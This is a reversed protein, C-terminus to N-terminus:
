CQDPDFDFVLTGNKFGRVRRDSESLIVTIASTENTIAAAAWHRTGLGKPIDVGDVTPELYRYASVIKGADSVVFAGDLRSFEKLMIDIIPDGIHVHSREFPNYSLARSKNMVVGADGITFLTGVPKGKQGKKGLEITLKVINRVVSQEARSRIFFDYLGSDGVKSVCVRTITDSRKAFLSTVCVINDDDAVLTRDLASEIGFRIRETVDPFELPLEIFREAEVSNEPAVVM